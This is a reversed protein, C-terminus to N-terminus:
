ERPYSFEAVQLEDLFNGWIAWRSQDDSIAGFIWLAAVKLPPIVLEAPTFRTVRNFYIAVTLERSDVYKLLGDIVGQVTATPNLEEPVVEKLQRPAFAQTDDKIWSAVADHDEAEAHAVGIPLGTVQSMGYCFLSAMRLERIERLDNTRLHRIEPGLNAPLSLEVRRLDVLV